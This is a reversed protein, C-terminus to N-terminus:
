HTLQEPEVEIKKYENAKNSVKLVYSEIDKEIESTEFQIKPKYGLNKESQTIFDYLERINKKRGDKNFGDGNHNKLCIQYRDYQLKEIRVEEFKKELTM